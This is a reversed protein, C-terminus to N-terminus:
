QVTAIGSGLIDESADPAFRKKVDNQCWLAKIWLSLLILVNRSLSLSIDSHYKLILISNGHLVNGSSM